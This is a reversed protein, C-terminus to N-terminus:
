KATKASIIASKPFFDNKETFLPKQTNLHEHGYNRSKRLIKMRHQECATSLNHLLSFIDYKSL